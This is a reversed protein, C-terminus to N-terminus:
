GLSLHSVQLSVFDKMRRFLSEADVDIQQKEELSVPHQTRAVLVAWQRFLDFAQSATSANTSSSEAVQRCCAALVALAPSESKM